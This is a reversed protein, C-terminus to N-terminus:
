GDPRNKLMHTQQVTWLISQMVKECFSGFIFKVCASDLKFDSSHVFFLNSLFDCM